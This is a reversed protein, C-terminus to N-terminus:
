QGFRRIERPFFRSYIGQCIGVIGKPTFKYIFLLYFITVWWIAMQASQGFSLILDDFLVLIGVGLFPGTFTGIGGVLIALFTLISVNVLHLSSYPDVVNLWVAFLSGAIGAFFGSIVFILAKTGPVWFGLHEVRESDDRIGSLIAAFPTKSVYWMAAMSITVVLLSFYYFTTKNGMDLNGFGPIYMLPSRPIALGNEGGTIESFKLCTVYVIQNLAITMLTFYVGKMKMLLPSLILGIFGSVSGGILIVFLFPIGGLHVFCLGTAYAGMGFFLAHGFSFLGGAALLNLSIAFMVQIGFIVILDATLVSFVKPIILLVLPICVWLSLTMVKKNM